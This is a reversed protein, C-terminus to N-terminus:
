QLLAIKDKIVWTEVPGDCVAIWIEAGQFGSVVDELDKRPVESCDLGVRGEGLEVVRQQELLEDYIKTREESDPDDIYFLSLHSKPPVTKEGLASKLKNRLDGHVGDQDVTVYVSMFYKEGVEVVKFTIPIIPQDTPIAKRLEDVPPPTTQSPVTTLTIHPHFHPFSAPSKYSPTKLKMIRQLKQAVDHPPVLWLSTGTHHM